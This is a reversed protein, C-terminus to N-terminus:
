HANFPKTSVCQTVWWHWIGQEFNTNKTPFKVCLSLLMVLLPSLISQQGWLTENDWGEEAQGSTRRPLSGRDLRPPPSSPVFQCGCLTEPRVLLSSSSVQWKSTQPRITEEQSPNVTAHLGRSVWAQVCAPLSLAVISFTLSFYPWTPVSPAFVFDSKHNLRNFYFRGTSLGFLFCVNPRQFM